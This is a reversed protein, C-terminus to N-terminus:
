DPPLIGIDINILRSIYKKAAPALLGQKYFGISITLDSKVALEAEGTDGDMGSNIDVSVVYAGSRGIELIAERPVGRVAGSFGTGLICDVIIDWGALCGSRFREIPVCLQRAQKEYYAAAPSLKDSTYLAVPDFGAKKLICALAYGDGGNNGGGAIIAIKGSWEVNCFVGQAARAMLVEGPVGGAITAADLARMTKVSVVTELKGNVMQQM